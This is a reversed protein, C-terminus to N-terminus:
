DIPVTPNSQVPTNSKNKNKKFKNAKPGNQTDAKIGNQTNSKATKPDQAKNFQKNKPVNQPKPSTTAKPSQGKNFQSNKPGNQPKPSNATKPSQTKNFQNNKPWNQGSKPSQAKNFQDNKHGNLGTKPSQANKNKNFQNGKNSFAGKEVKKVTDNGHINKALFKKKDNLVLNNPKKKGIQKEPGSFGSKFSSSDKPKSKFKGM